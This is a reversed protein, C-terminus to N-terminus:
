IVTAKPQQQYNRIAPKNKQSLQSLDFLANEKLYSMVTSDGLDRKLTKLLRKSFGTKGSQNCPERVNWLSEM